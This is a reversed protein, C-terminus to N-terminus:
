TKFISVSCPGAGVRADQYQPQTGATTLPLNKLGGSFTLVAISNAMGRAGRSRSFGSAYLVDTEEDYVIGRPGPAVDYRQVVSMQQLDLAVIENTDEITVFAFLSDPSYTAGRAGKNGVDIKAVVENEALDIVSVFNAQNNAAIAMNGNPSIASSYPMTGEGLYIKNVERISELKPAESQLTTVNIRSIYDSGSIPVLCFNGTSSSDPHRPERGVPIRHIEKRLDLDVISFENEGANSVLCYKDGPLITLGIPAIGVTIRGVERLSYA